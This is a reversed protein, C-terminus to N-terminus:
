ALQDVQLGQLLSSSVGYGATQGSASGSGNALGNQLAQVLQNSSLGLSSALDSVNQQLDSGTSSTSSSGGGHHHHHHGGLGKQNAIQSALSSTDTTQGTAADQDSQQLGQNIAALLDASSVGKQSALDSMSSGGKLSTVLDSASMGLLSAVNSLVPPVSSDSSGSQTGTLSQAYAANSSVPNIM